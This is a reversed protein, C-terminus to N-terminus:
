IRYVREATTTLIAQKEAESLGAVISTAAGLIKAGEAFLLDVPM